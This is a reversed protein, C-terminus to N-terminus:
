DERSETISTNKNVGKLVQTSQPQLAGLDIRQVRLM